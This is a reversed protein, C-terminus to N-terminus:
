VPNAASSLLIQTLADQKSLSDTKGERKETHFALSMESDRRCEKKKEKVNNRKETKRKRKINQTSRPNPDALANRM